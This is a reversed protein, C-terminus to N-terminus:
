ILYIVAVTVNPGLFPMFNAAFIGFGTALSNGFIHAKCLEKNPTDWFCDFEQFLM